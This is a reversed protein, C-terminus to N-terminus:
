IYLKEGTVEHIAMIIDTRTITKRGCHEAYVHAAGIVPTMWAIMAGKGEELALKAVRKGGGRRVIRRIARDYNRSKENLLVKMHRKATASLSKGGGSKGAARSAAKDVADTVTADHAKRLMSMSKGGTRPHPHTATVANKPKGAAKKETPPPPTGEDMPVADASVKSDLVKPKKTKKPAPAPAAAAPTEAEAEGESEGGADAGKHAGNGEIVRDIMDDLSLKKVRKKKHGSSASAAPVPTEPVVVDDASGSKSLSM